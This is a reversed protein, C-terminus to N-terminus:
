AIIGHNDENGTSLVVAGAGDGFIVSVGHGRTTMDLGFSHNEAGVVLINKYMGAKIYADATAFAYIFGSCQNRVGLAGITRVDLNGQLIVGCGPVYYDPSLTEFIIFDIDKPTLGANKSAIEAAKTGLD